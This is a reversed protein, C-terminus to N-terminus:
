FERDTNKYFMRAIANLAEPDLVRELDKEIAEPNWDEPQLRIRRSFVGKEWTVAMIENHEALCNDLCSQVGAEWTVDGEIDCEAFCSEGVEIVVEGGEFLEAEKYKLGHLDCFEKVKKELKANMGM